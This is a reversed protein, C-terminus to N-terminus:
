DLSTLTTQVGTAPYVIEMPLGREDTPTPGDPLSALDDEDRRATVAAVLADLVDDVGGVMPAYGPTTFEEALDDVLAATRPDEDALIGRRERVGEPTHKSHELPDGALAHFCVEPHSERVRDRATPREDLFEDVERIRPVIGWAQNQISYGAAENVEKAHELNTEYVAERVPTYFVSRQRRKLFDKAAEDCERRGQSRSPLGIPVDVLIRTADSHYKWLSWVSPFLDADWDGDDDLVVGFWGRAAWDVGIYKGM